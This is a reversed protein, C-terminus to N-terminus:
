KRRLPCNGEPWDEPLLLRKLDPHDIFNIGFMEWIEREIWEGAKFLVAISDVELNEKDIKIRISIIQGEQDLSFHYLIEMHNRADTASATNFRLGLDYFMFKAVEKIDKKDKLDIYARRENHIYVKEIKDAFKEKIREVVEM